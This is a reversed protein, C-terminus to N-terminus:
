GTSRWRALTSTALELRTVRELFFSVVIDHREKKTGMRNGCACVTGAPAIRLQRKSNGRRQLQRYVPIGSGGGGIVFVRPAGKAPELEVCGFDANYSGCSIEYLTEIYDATFIEEPTGCRAISQNHVCVVYDSAKQALDLAHLSLLVALQRRRVMEKPADGCLEDLSDPSITQCLVVNSFRLLVPHIELREFPLIPAFSGDFAASAIARHQRLIDLLELM